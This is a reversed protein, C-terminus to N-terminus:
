AEPLIDLGKWYPRGNLTIEAIGPTQQRVRENFKRASLPRHGTDECWERYARYLVTKDVSATSLDNVTREEIFVRTPDVAQEFQAKAREISSGQSFQGREVLKLYANIAHKFLGSLESSTTLKGILNPDREKSGESFTREFPIVMWRRLFGYSADLSAPIENASFILRAFPEFEFRHGYKRQASFTGLDGDTLMKFTSSDSLVKNPLDACINMLKSYLEAVAFKDDAFDQLTVSSINTRGIFRRLLQLFVSKGNGGAGILLMAMQFRSDPVTAVGFIEYALRNSDEPFVESIFKAIAPCEAQADWTVPIQIPSLYDASHRELTQAEVNLIGNRCNIRDIPPKEWLSPAVDFLYRTVADARGPRWDDGLHTILLLNLRDDAPVYRGSDKDYIYLLGGGRGLRIGLQILEQAAYVPNFGRSAQNQDSADDGSGPAAPAYEAQAEALTVLEEVTHGLDLWDSVDGHEGTEPFELVKVSDAVPTLLEAVQQAHRRGPEDNDQVVAVHRGEFWQVLEQRFKGAGESNTTSILGLSALRDVDKEGECVFVLTEMSAASLEPLRYPVHPIGKVSYNWGGTGDPSRQIFNKGGESDTYERRIVQRLLQGDESTYDYHAIDRTPRRGNNKTTKPRPDHRKGCKCDGTLRHPYAESAGAIPLGGAYESRTCFAFNGNLYGWCRMGQGRPAADFGGCIPCPSQATHRRNETAVM